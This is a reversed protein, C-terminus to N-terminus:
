AQRRQDVEVLAAAAETLAEREEPDESLLLTAAAQAVVVRVLRRDTSHLTVLDMGEPVQSPASTLGVVVVVRVMTQLETQVAARHLVAREAEQALRVTAGRVETTEQYRPVRRLVAATQDLDALEEWNAQPRIEKEQNGQGTQAVRGRV